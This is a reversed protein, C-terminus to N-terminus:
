SAAVLQLLAEWQPTPTQGTTRSVVEGSGSVGVTFPFASLGYGTALDGSDSDRLVPLPWEERLLWDSSPYNPQGQDVSTSIVVVEVNGPIGNTSFWSAIAPIEKQCYPCWHAVFILVRPTGDDLNITTEVNDFYAATIAPAQMGVGPDPVVSPDFRPLSEGAAEAFSVQRVSGGTPIRAAASVDQVTSADAAEDSGGSLVVAAVVAAVIVAAIVGIAIKVQNSLASETTTM